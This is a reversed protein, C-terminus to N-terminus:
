NKNRDILVVIIDMVNTGTAGTILLGGATSFFTYADNNHLYEEPNLGKSIANRILHIDGAAGATDTPGDTGDTGASLITIGSVNQKQLEILSSLVLEQNRGGKGNGKITVTTEGGYLLCAPTNGSYQLAEGALKKGVESAEGELSDTIIETHYGLEKAKAAAAELAIRNTAALINHLKEPIFSGHEKQESQVKIFKIISHPIKDEVRYKEIIKLADQPTAPDPVTLGSAIIDLPNGIVDSLIVSIVGAPLALKALKGGKLFAVKKRIINIEQINAGCHLLATSLQQYEELSIGEPIDAVLASAGGSILCLVLDDESLGRLISQINRAAEVGKDDPVPHGTEFCSLYRLPLAHGYKTVVIGKDIWDGCIVELAAAMAAAAKGVSIVVLKGKAKEFEKEGIIIKNGKKKILSPLFNDPKVASVAASFIEEALNKKM